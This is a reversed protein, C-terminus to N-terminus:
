PLRIGKGLILFAAAFITAATTLRLNIPIEIESAFHPLSTQPATAQSKASAQRLDTLALFFGLTLGITGSLGDYLILSPSIPNLCSALLSLAGGAFCAAHTPRRAAPLSFPAAPLMPASTDFRRPAHTRTLLQALCRAAQAIGYRYGLAAVIV